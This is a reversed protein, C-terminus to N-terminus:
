DKEFDHWKDNSSVIAQFSSMAYSFAFVGIIMTAILFYTEISNNPGYDGYGVTTVTEIM